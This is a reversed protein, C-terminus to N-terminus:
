ERSRESPPPKGQTDVGQGWGPVDSRQMVLHMRVWQPWGLCGVKFFVDWLCTAAKPVVGVGTTPLGVHLGLKYM